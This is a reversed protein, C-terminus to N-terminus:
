LPASYSLVRGAPAIQLLLDFDKRNRTLLTCDHKVATFLILADNLLRGRDAGAHSQLRALIGAALGAEAWIGADPPLTRHHPRREISQLIAATAGKTKPHGPDLHGIGIALEAATVPSHWLTSARLLTEADRPLRGQLEDIYVTSDLLLNRPLPKALDVFPLEGPPRARLPGSLKHPKLRRLARGLDSAL